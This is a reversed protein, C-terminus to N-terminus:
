KKIGLFMEDLTQTSQERVLKQLKDSLNKLRSIRANQNSNVTKLKQFKQELSILKEESRLARKEMQALHYHSVKTDKLDSNAEINKSKTKIRQSNPNFKFTALEEKLDAIILKHKEIRETRSANTKRAARLETSKDDLKAKLNAINEKLEAIIIKHKEIRETRSANTKRAARLETNTNDLKTKYEALQAKLKKVDDSNDTKNFKLLIEGGVKTNAIFNLTQNHAKTDSCM